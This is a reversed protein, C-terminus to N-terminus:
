GERCDRDANGPLPNVGQDVAPVKAREFNEAFRVHGAVVHFLERLELTVAAGAVAARDCCLFFKNVPTLLYRESAGAHRYSMARRKSFRLGGSPGETHPERNVSLRVGTAGM